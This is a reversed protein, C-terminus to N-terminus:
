PRDTGFLDDASIDGISEAEANMRRAKRHEREKLLVAHFDDISLVTFPTTRDAKIYSDAWRLGLRTM